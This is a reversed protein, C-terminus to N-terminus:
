ASEPLAISSSSISESSTPPCVLLQYEWRITEGHFTLRMDNLLEIQSTADSILQNKSWVASIQVGDPKCDLAFYVHTDCSQSLDMSADLFEVVYGSLEQDVRTASYLPFPIHSREIKLRPRPRIESRRLCSEIKKILPHLLKETDEPSRSVCLKPTAQSLLSPLHRSLLCASKFASLYYISGYNFVGSLPFSREFPVGDHWANEPSQNSEGAGSSNNTQQSESAFFFAVVLMYCVVAIVVTAVFSIEASIIENPLVISVLAEFRRKL